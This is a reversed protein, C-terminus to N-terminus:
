AGEGPKRVADMKVIRLRDEARVASQRSPDQHKTGARRRLTLVVAAIIAVTLIVAAVEFPLLYGTFLERGIWAINSGAELSPDPTPFPQELRRVGILALMEALMIAAVLAAVPLYRAFGERLPTANIDLMMVVFLFLVMVAGVYVLVLAIGLFEAQALLFIAATSFFTLVLSLAAIVPNKVLIVSAAACVTVLAFFYFAIQPYDM